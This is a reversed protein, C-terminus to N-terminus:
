GRSRVAREGGRRRFLPRPADEPEHRLSAVQEVAEDEAAEPEVPPPPPPAEEAAVPPAELETWSGYYRRYRRRELRGVRADNLVLGAVAADHRVLVELAEGAKDELTKGDRVVVVVADAEAALLLADAFALLPPTDVVVVDYEARLTRIADVLREQVVGGQYRASGAHVEAFGGPSRHVPVEALEGAVYDALGPGGPDRHRRDARLDAHVLVANRGSLAYSAALNSSVTSKGDRPEPSAVVVVKLEAGREEVLQLETRLMRVGEAGWGSARQVVLPDKEIRRNRVRPVVALVPYGLQEETRDRGSIRPRLVGIAVAIACGLLLGVLQGAFLRITRAPIAGVRQVIPSGVVEVQNGALSAELKFAQKTGLLRTYIASYTDYKTQTEPSAGGAAEEVALRASFRALQADVERISANVDALARELREVDQEARYEVYNNAYAELTEVTDLGEGTLTIRLLDTNEEAGVGLQRLLEAGGDSMGLEEATEAAVVVSRVAEVEAPPIGEQATLVDEGSATFGFVQVRLTATASYLATAEPPRTVVALITAVVVAVVVIWRRQWIMRVYDGLAVGRSLRSEPVAM